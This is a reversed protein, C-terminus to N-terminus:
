RCRARAARSRRSAPAYSAPAQACSAEGYAAGHGVSGDRGAPGQLFELVQRELYDYFPDYRLRLLQAPPVALLNQEGRLEIGGLTPHDPTGRGYIPDDPPFPLAVHSLSYVGRPWSLDLPRTRVRGGGAPRERAVVELSDADRNTVLTVAYPTDAEVLAEVRGHDYRGFLEMIEADRNVDFLLLRDRGSHLRDMLGDVLAPAVVTADVVSQVALVAPFRDWAVPELADLRAQVSRALRHVQYGANVPFSNFKYPDFEPQLSLWALRELGPLHGALVLLRAFRAAPSVAIAPSVLVLRVPVPWEPDSLAELTYDLALAAGNSYGVIVLPRGEGLTARLHDVALRVAAAMDEWTVRTLGAPVLGHGPLRLALARFGAAQLGLALARLSYPSDSMGHLLLVAGRPNEVPLEVTRNWDRDSVRATLPNGPHYRSLAGPRAQSVTSRWQQVLRSELARYARLDSVEARQTHFDAEPQLTHWPRLPPGQLRTATYVGAAAMVAGLVMWLLRSLIGTLRRM